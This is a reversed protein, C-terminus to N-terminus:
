LGRFEGFSRAVAVDNGVGNARRTAADGRAGENVGRQQEPV